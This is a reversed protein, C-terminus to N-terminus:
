KSISTILQDLGTSIEKDTYTGLYLRILRMVTRVLHTENERRYQLRKEHLISNPHCDDTIATGLKVLDDPVKKQPLANSLRKGDRAVIDIISQAQMKIANHISLKADHQSALKIQIGVVLCEEQIVRMARDKDFTELKKFGFNELMIRHSYGLSMLRIGHALEHFYDIGNVYIGGRADLHTRMLVKNGLWGSFKENLEVPVGITRGLEIASDTTLKRLHQGM